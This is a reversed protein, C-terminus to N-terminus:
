ITAITGVRAAVYINTLGIALTMGEVREILFETFFIMLTSYRNAVMKM